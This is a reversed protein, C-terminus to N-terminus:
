LKNGYRDVLQTIVKPKPPKPIHREIIHNKIEEEELSDFNCLTCKYQKLGKWKGIVFYDDITKVKKPEEIKKEEKVSEEKKKAM